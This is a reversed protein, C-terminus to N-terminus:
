APLICRQLVGMETLKKIINEYTEQDELAQNIVEEQMHSGPKTTVTIKKDPLADILVKKIVAGIVGGAPCFPTTPTFEVKIEDDKIEVDEPTVIGMDTVPIPHEPDLVRGIIKMLQEKDVM